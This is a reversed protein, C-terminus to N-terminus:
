STEQNRRTNLDTVPDTGPKRVRDRRPAPPEVTVEGVVAEVRGSFGTAHGSVWTTNSAAHFPQGVLPPWTAHTAATHHEPKLHHGRGQGYPHHRACVPHGHGPHAHWQLRWCGRVHCNHKRWWTAFFAGGGFVLTVLGIDGLAGSWFSYGCGSHDTASCTSGHGEALPHWLWDAGSAILLYLM